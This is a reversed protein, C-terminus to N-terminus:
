LYQLQLWRVRKKDFMCCSSAVFRISHKKIIGAPEKFIACCIFLYLRLNANTNRYKTIFGMAIVVNLHLLM